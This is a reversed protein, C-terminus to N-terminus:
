SQGINPFRDRVEMSGDEIKLVIVEKPDSINVIWVSRGESNINITSNIKHDFYTQKVVKRVNIPMHKETGYLLHYVLYGNKEFVASNRQENLIFNVIIQKNVVYWQPTNAEKFIKNFSETVKESIEAKNATGYIEIEKLKIQASVTQVTMVVVSAGMLLRCLLKKM